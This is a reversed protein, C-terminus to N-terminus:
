STLRQAIEEVDLDGRAVAMTLAVADDDAMEVNIGNLSLFVVAALWALRKNGDVLPHTRALSHMLAAAKHELASYADQGFVTARARHAASELLGIDRVPGAGLRQTMRLLDEVDLYEVPM